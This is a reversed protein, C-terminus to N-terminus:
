TSNKRTFPFALREGADLKALVLQVAGDGFSEELKLDSVLRAASSCSLRRDPPKGATAPVLADLILTM